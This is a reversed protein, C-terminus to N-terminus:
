LDQTIWGRPHDRRKLRWSAPYASHRPRAPFSEMQSIMPGEASEGGLGRLYVPKTPFDKAREASTLILAGGGDVGSLM